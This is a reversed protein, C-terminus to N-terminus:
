SSRNPPDGSSFVEGNTQLFGANEEGQVQIKCIEAAVPRISTV